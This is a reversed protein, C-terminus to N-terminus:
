NASTLPGPLSGSPPLSLAIWSELQRRLLPLPLAGHRLLEDHFSRLSFDPGLVKEAQARLALIERKGIMYALAQGPYVIYRDIEARINEEPQGSYQRFAEMAQDRSWGLHHLGTDVVLRLARWMDASLYGFEQYPDTYLGLQFGLSESYLGWGETYATSFAHRRFLPLSEMEQALAIQFHHGPAAEHILISEMQWSPREPLQTTNVYFTGPQGNALSGPRYFAMPAGAAAFAPTPEIGFPLRPMLGFLSPLRTDVKKALARYDRLLDEPSAYFFRPDTRLFHFFAPLDGSFGVRDKIALMRAQIRHVEEWGIAHIAEPTLEPLTTHRAAHFAYWAPGGPLDSWSTTARCGPIYTESLFASLLRLRPNVEEEVLRRSSDLFATRAAPDLSAPLREALNELFPSDATHAPLLAALQVPVPDMVLRPPTIGAALGARLNAEEQDIVAPIGQLRLLFGERWAPSDLPLASLSYVLGSYFAQMQNVPMLYDPYELGRLNEELNHRFYELNLRNEPSLHAPDFSALLALIATLDSRYIQRGAASPDSWRGAYEVHGLSSAFDPFHWLALEWSHDLFAALRADEASAPGPQALTALASLAEQRPGASDPAAPSLLTLALLPLLCLPM